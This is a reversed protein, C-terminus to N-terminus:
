KGNKVRWIMCVRNTITCRRKGSCMILGKNYLEKRRPRVMNPIIFGLRLTLESDTLDPFRRIADFVKSERTQMELDNVVEFYSLLSTDTVTM